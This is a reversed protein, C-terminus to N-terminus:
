EEGRAALYAVYDDWMAQAIVDRRANARERSSANPPGNALDGINHDLGGDVDEVTLWDGIEEPDYRRIFNHIAALAAPIRAQISLNYEAPLHVIRFRGKLIGFIREVVNRASAHRL